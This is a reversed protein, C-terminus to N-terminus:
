KLYYGTLPYYIELTESLIANRVSTFVPRLPEVGAHPIAGVGGVSSQPLYQWLIDEGSRQSGVKGM